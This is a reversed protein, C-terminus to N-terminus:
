KKIRTNLFSQRELFIQWAFNLLAPYRAPDEDLRALEQLQQRIIPFNKPYAWIAREMQIHAEAQRGDRALLIAQRYVGISTPSYRMVRENMAGKDAIHDWGTLGLLNDVNPRLLLSGGQMSILNGHIRQYLMQQAYGNAASKPPMAAYLSALKRYDRLTVPLLLLGSILIALMLKGGWAIINERAGFQYCTDDLMGLTLAAIGLFYSYWLPYELMSHIALVVLM